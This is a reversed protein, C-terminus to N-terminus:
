YKSQFEIPNNEPMATLLLVRLSITLRGAFIPCKNLQPWFSTPWSPNLSSTMSFVRGARTMSLVFAFTTSIDAPPICLKYKVASPSTQDNPHLSSPANPRSVLLSPESNVACLTSKGFSQMRIVAPSECEANKSLSPRTNAHPENRSECPVMPRFIFPLCCDGISTTGPSSNTSM